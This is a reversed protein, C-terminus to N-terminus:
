FTFGRGCILAAITALGGGEIWLVHRPWVHAPAASKQSAAFPPVMFVLWCTGFFSAAIASMLVMQWGLPNLMGSVTSVLCGGLYPAWTLIKIRASREDKSIGLTPSIARASLMAASLGLAIGFITMVIKWVLPNPTQNTFVFWDGFGAFPSVMMYGGAILLNITGLLWWFYRTWPALQERSAQLVLLALAGELINFASGAATVVQGRWGDEVTCQVFTSTLQEVRAGLLICAGGHGLAEHSMDAIFYALVGIAAATLADVGTPTNKLTM